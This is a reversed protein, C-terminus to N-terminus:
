GLCFHLVAEIEGETPERALDHVYLAIIKARVDAPLESPHTYARGQEILKDVYNAAPDGIVAGSVTKWWGM